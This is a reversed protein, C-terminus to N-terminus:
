PFLLILVAGIVMLGAGSIRRVVDEERIVMTGYLVVLIVSMRKISMVYPVIQLLFATNIVVCEVAILTGTLLGAGALYWFPAPREQGGTAPSTAPGSSPLSSPLVHLFAPLYGRWEMFAIFAFSLGLLLCEIGIGFYPDTNLLVIKDFNISISYLFAVVLMGLVAPHSVMARFPDTIREHEAATNLVYSGSVVVIIGLIGVASPIEGLVLAATGVLFLPTFSLMPVSLSIDSSALARFILITCLVNVFTTVFLASYFAPGIAPIGHFFSYTLLYISDVLFGCGALPYPSIRELFKKNLIFYAANTCAGIGALLAWFM